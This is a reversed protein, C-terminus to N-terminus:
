NDNGPKPFYIEFDKRSSGRSILFWFDRYQLMWLPYARLIMGIAVQTVIAEEVYTAEM